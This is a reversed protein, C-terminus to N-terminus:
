YFNYNPTITSIDVSDKYKEKFTVKTTYPEIKKFFLDNIINTFFSEFYLEYESKEYAAAEPEYRMIIHYGYDSTYLLKDGVKIESIKKYM